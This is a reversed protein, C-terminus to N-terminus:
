RSNIKTENSIRIAKSIQLAVDLFVIKANGNHEIHFIASEFQEAIREVNKDHVYPHFNKSFNKETETLYVVENNSVNLAYNERIMRLAYQFFNKQKERGLGSMELSWEMLGKVDAKFGLRMLQIFYQFWENNEEDQQILKKAKLFNGRSLRTIEHIKKDEMTLLDKLAKLMSEHDIPPLHIPQCRSLITPLMQSTNESVLLFITDTPPEEIIKLLKNACHINMKEVLWIVVIKYESEFPKFNVKEIIKSSEAEFIAPQKNEASISKMWDNLNLYPNSLVANRWEAIFYDSVPLKKEGPNIIPFSVHLDPHILKETKKCSPCVGCSDDESRNTCLIYQAFSLALTLSGTGEMGAFLVAHPIRREEVMKKLRLKIREQGIVESFKM